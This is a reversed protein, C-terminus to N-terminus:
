GGGEWRTWRGRGQGDEGESVTQQGGGEWRTWRGRGQGDEGESM